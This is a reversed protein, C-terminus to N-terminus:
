GHHKKKGEVLTNFSGGRFGAGKQGEGELSSMTHGHNQKSESHQLTKKLENTKRLKTKINAQSATPRPKHIRKKQPKCRPRHGFHLLGDSSETDKKKETETM